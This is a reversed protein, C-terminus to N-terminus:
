ESARGESSLTANRKRRSDAILLLILGGLVFIATGVIAWWNIVQSTVWMDFDQFYAIAIYDKWSARNGELSSANTKLILGPMDVTSRYTNKSIRDVFVLTEHLERFEEDQARYVDDVSSRKLTERFAARQELVNLDDIRSFVSYLSDKMSRVYDATLREDNIERVGELFIRFYAAFINRKMWEEFRASADDISLSDGATEYPHKLIEHEIAMDIESRSLYDTIPIDNVPNFRHITERYTLTSTFWRFREEISAVGRLTRGRVGAIERNLEEIDAFNRSATLEWKRDDIKRIEQTWTSDVPVTFSGGYISLSDGQIVISRRLTGDRNITTSTEIELCGALLVPMAILFLTRYAQWPKM